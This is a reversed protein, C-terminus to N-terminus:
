THLPLRKVFKVTQDLKRRMREQLYLPQVQVIEIEAEAPNQVVKQQLWERPHLLQEKIFKAEPELQQNTVQQLREQPHLPQQKIFEVEDNSNGSEYSKMQKRLNKNLIVNKRITETRIIKNIRKEETMETDAPKTLANNLDLPRNIEM